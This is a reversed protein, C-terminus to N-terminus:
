AQAMDLRNKECALTTPPGWPETAPPSLARSIENLSFGDYGMSFARNQRSFGLFDLSKCGEFSSNERSFPELELFGL